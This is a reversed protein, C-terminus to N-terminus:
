KIGGDEMSFHNGDPVPRFDGGWRNLPDLAKWHDGLPRYAESQAQYIGGRVLNFDVALRRSHLSDAIGIGQQANMAALRRDRFADGFTLGYGAAYAWLILRGINETFIQQKESLTM